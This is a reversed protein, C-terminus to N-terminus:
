RGYMFQVPAAQTYSSPTFSAPMTAHGTSSLNGLYHGNLVVDGATPLSLGASLPTTGTFSTLIAIFYNTGATLPVPSTLTGECPGTGAALATAMSSTIGLQTAGSESFIAMANTNASTIGARTLILGLTTISKTVAATALCCFVEQSPLGQGTSNMSMVPMTAIAFGLAGLSIGGAAADGQRTLANWTGPTGGATCVWVAGTQDIVFDGAAFTGSTPAGSATGGVYRSAATAGTLGSVALDSVSTIAHSNNSWDAATPSATAIADLSGASGGIQTWPMATTGLTGTWAGAGYLLGGNATGNQVYVFAGAVQSPDNMGTYRTLVYATSSGGLASVTYIGNHGSTGENKVLLLQGATLTVGDIVDSTGGGIATNAPGTIIGGSSTSYTNSTPLVAVTAAAVSLSVQVVPNTVGTGAALMANPMLFETLGTGGNPVTLPLPPGQVSGYWGTGGNSTTLVVVTLASAVTGLNPAPGSLWTVSGPWTVAYNYTGGSAPQSLNLTLTQTVTAPYPAATLTVTTNANGLTVNWAGGSAVAVTATSGSWTASTVTAGYREDLQSLPLDDGQVYWIGSKYQLIIGQNLLAITMSTSGGSVNFVDTGSGNRQVTVSTGTGVKILKVGIMTGAAPANPLTVTVNGGSVDM